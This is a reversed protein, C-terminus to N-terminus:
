DNQSNNFSDIVSTLYQSQSNMTGILSDLRVFQQALLEYRRDLREESDEINTTLRDIKGEASSKEGNLAGSSSTMDRLKNNLLDGLGTLSTDSDGIFLKAVDDASSSFALSLENEDISFTGDKNLELGIDLMSTIDTDTQVSNTILEVLDPRLTKITYVNSLVGNEDDDEGYSTKTEIEQVFENYTDILEIIKEKMTDTSASVSLQTEGTQDFNLTIGQIVDDLDNNSQRQYEYGDISFLSNLSAEDAGQMETMTIGNLFIRNDEGEEDATLTLRWPTESSGDNILVATVGTNNTDDNIISVADQYSTGPPIAVYVPDSTAGAQHSFLLDPQIFSPGESVLIQNNNLSNTDTSSLRIYSGDTGPEVSATAYPTGDEDLNDSDANIAAAIETLTSDADLELSISKQDDGSGITFALTTEETIAPDTSSDIGTVPLAYMLSDQEEIGVSQWSSKSALRTVNISYSALKTGSVVTASAVDEDSIKTQRELFNSQLSLSLASSKMQILKANLSDFETVQQELQTRQSKQLNISTSDVEKLQDLIEQLEFGSGVGLNTISGLPMNFEERDLLRAQLVSGQM